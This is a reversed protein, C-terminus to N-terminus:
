CIAKVGLETLVPLEDRMEILGMAFLKEMHAAKIPSHVWRRAQIDRLSWRLDIAEARDLVSFPDVENMRGGRAVIAKLDPASGGRQFALLDLVPPESGTLISLCARAHGRHNITSCIYCSTRSRSRNRCAQRRKTAPISALKADDYGYVVAILREDEAIRAPGLAIRDEHLIANLQNPHDGEGTLRKLWLRDTLLLHNLTRHLSGFFMGVQLRYAQDSLDLAAYLRVNEWKNYAALQRFYERAM